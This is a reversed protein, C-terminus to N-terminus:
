KRLASIIATTCSDAILVAFTLAGFALAGIQTTFMSGIGASMIGALVYLGIFRPASM